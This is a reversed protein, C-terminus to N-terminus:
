LKTQFIVMDNFSFFSRFGKEGNYEVQMIDVTVLVRGPQESLCITWCYEVAMGSGKDYAEQLVLAMIKYRVLQLHVSFPDFMAWSPIFDRMSPRCFPVLCNPM